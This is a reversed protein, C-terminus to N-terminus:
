KKLSELFNALTLLTRVLRLFTTVDPAGRGCVRRVLSIVLQTVSKARTFAVVLQLVVLNADSGTCM